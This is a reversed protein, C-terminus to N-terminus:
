RPQGMMLGREKREEDFEEGRGLTSRVVLQAATEGPRRVGPQPAPAIQMGGPGKKGMKAEKGPFMELEETDEEETDNQERDLKNKETTADEPNFFAPLAPLPSLSPLAPLAPMSPLLPARPLAAALPM